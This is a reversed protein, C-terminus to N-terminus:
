PVRLGLRRCVEAFPIGIAFPVGDVNGERHLAVPRRDYLSVWVAGSDGEHSLKCTKPVDPPLRIIIEGNADIDDVWGETVGTGAGAKVLRMGVVADIPQGVRGIGLIEDLYPLSDLLRGAACDLNGSTRAGNTAAIPTSEEAFAPQCIRRGPTVVPPTGVGLVHCCSVLWRDAGDSTLLMGLTGRRGDPPAIEIGGRITTYKQLYNAVM